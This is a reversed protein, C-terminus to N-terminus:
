LGFKKRAEDMVAPTIETIGNEHAYREIGLMAMPRAFSPIKELRKRSEDTWTIAPGEDAPVTTHEEKKIVNEAILPTKQRSTVGVILVNAGSREAVRAANSGISEFKGRHMGFRGVVVLDADEKGAEVCLAHWPTGASLLTRVSLGREEAMGAGTDLHRQYLDELSRDIIMNHLQEQERFRFVQGAEQSLVGSLLEFVTRHLAPNHAALLILEAQFKEGIDLARELAALSARSGDLGIMIREPFRGNRVVLVDCSASRVVRESTSGLGHTGPVHGIGQAGIAMLDHGATMDCLVDSRKGDTVVERFPLNRDRCLDRLQKMYESSIIELGREILVSHIRRQYDLVDEKQYQSPLYQELARFRMRHFGGSYVHYGTLDGRFEQVLRVALDEAYRSHESNDVAVAIHKYM